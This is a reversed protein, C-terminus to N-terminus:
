FSLDNPDITYHGERGEKAVRAAVTDWDHRFAEATARDRFVVEVKGIHPWGSVGVLAADGYNDACVSLLDQAFVALTKTERNPLYPQADCGVAYVLSLTANPM